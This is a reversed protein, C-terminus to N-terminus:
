GKDREMPSHLCMRSFTFYLLEQTLVCLESFHLYYYEWHFVPPHLWFFSGSLCSRRDGGQVKSLPSQRGEKELSGLSGQLLSINIRFNSFFTLQGNSQTSIELSLGSMSNGSKLSEFILTQKKLAWLVANQLFTKLMFYLSCCAFFYFSNMLIKLHYSM